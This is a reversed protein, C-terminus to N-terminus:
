ADMWGDMWGDMWEVVGAYSIVSMIMRDVYILGSVDSESPSVYGLLLGNNNSITSIGPASILALVEISQLKTQFKWIDHVAISTESQSSCSAGTRQIFVAASLWDNM